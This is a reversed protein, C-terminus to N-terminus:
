INRVKQKKGPATNVEPSVAHKHTISSSLNENEPLRKTGVTAPCGPERLNPSGDPLSGYFATNMDDTQLPAPSKTSQPTSVHDGIYQVRFEIEVAGHHRPTFIFKVRGDHVGPHMDVRYKFTESGIYAKM